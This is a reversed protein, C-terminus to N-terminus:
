PRASGILSGSKHYLDTHLIGHIAEFQQRLEGKGTVVVVARKAAKPL